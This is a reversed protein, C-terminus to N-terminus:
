SSYRHRLARFRFILDIAPHALVDPATRATGEVLTFIPRALMALAALALRGIEAGLEFGLLLDLAVVAINRLALEMFIVDLRTAQPAFELALRM